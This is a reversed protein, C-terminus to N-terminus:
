RPLTYCRRRRRGFLHISTGYVRVDMLDYIVSGLCVGVAVCLCGSNATRKEKARAEECQREALSGLIAQDKHAHAMHVDNLWSECAHIIYMSRARKHEALAFQRYVYFKAQAVM